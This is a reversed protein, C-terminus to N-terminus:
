ENFNWGDWRTGAGTAGAHFIGFEIWLSVSLFPPHGIPFIADYQKSISPAFPVPIVSAYWAVAGVPVGHIWSSDITSIFVGCHGTWSIRKVFFTPVLVVVCPQAFLRAHLGTHVAWWTLRWSASGFVKRLGGAVSPLCWMWLYCHKGLLTNIWITSSAWIWTSSQWWVNNMLLLSNNIIWSRAHSKSRIM